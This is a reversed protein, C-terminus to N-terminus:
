EIAELRDPYVNVLRHSESLVCVREWVRSIARHFEQMKLNGFRIHIVRIPPETILALQSFDADKSVVTLRNERAYEWIRLDDWTDDLDRVHVYDPNNWLFFYYPLNADVLFKPM